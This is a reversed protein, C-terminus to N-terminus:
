VDIKRQKGWWIDETIDDALIHIFGKNESELPKIEMLENEYRGFSTSKLSSHMSDIFEQSNGKKLYETNLHIYMYRM